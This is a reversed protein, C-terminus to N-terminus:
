TDTFPEGSEWKLLSLIEARAGWIQHRLKRLTVM